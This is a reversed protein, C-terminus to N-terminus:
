DKRVPLIRKPPKTKAVIKTASVEVLEMSIGPLHIMTNALGASDDRVTVSLVATDDVLKVRRASNVWSLSRLERLLKHCSAYNVESLDIQITNGKWYRERWATRVRPFLTRAIFDAANSFGDAAAVSLTEAESKGSFEESDSIKRTRLDFVRATLTTDCPYLTKTLLVSKEQALGSGKVLLVYDVAFEKGVEFAWDEQETGESRTGHLTSRIEESDLLKFANAALERVFIERAATADFVVGDVECDLAFIVTAVPESEGLLGVEDLKNELAGMDVHYRAGVISSGIDDINSLDRDRRFTFTIESTATYQEAHYLIADLLAQRNAEIRSRPILLGLAQEVATQQARSVALKYSEDNVGEAEAEVSILRFARGDCQSV